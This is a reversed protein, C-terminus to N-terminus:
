VFIISRHKFSEVRQKCQLIKMDM